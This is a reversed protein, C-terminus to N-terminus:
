PGPHEGQARLEPLLDFDPFLAPTKFSLVAAIAPGDLTVIHLADARFREHHSARRYVGFALRGNARRPLLRRLGARGAPAAGAGDEPPLLRDAVADRGTHVAGEPVCQLTADATLLARLGDRDASECCFIFRMMALPEDEPLRARGGGGTLAAARVAARAATFATRAAPLEQTGRGDLGLVDHLVLARREGPPLQQLAAVFELDVTERPEFCAAPGLSEPYLDDPFPELWTAPSPARGLAPAWLPLTRPPRGAVAERCRDLAAVRADGARGAEGDEQDAALDQAYRLSGSMLYAALRIEAATSGDAASVGEGQSAAEM